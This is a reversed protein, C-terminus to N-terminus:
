TLKRVEALLAEQQIKGLRCLKQAVLKQNPKLNIQHEVVTVGSIECYDSIFLSPHRKLMIKFEEKEETSLDKALMRELDEDKIEKQSSEGSGESPNLLSGM